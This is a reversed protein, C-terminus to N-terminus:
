KFFVMASLSPPGKGLIARHILGLSAIDRRTQLPALKFFLLADSASFGIERLFRKQIRDLHSLVTNTAHYIAPTPFELIPLVHAKYLQVLSAVDYFRRLRLLTTLKWDARSGVDECEEVMTLKLDWTVGLVLFSEGVPRQRHLM